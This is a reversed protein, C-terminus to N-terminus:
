FYRYVKSSVFIKGSFAQKVDTFSVSSLGNICPLEAARGTSAASNM